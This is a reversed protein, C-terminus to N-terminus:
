KTNGHKDELVNKISESKNKAYRYLNDLDEENWMPEKKYKIFAIVIALNKKDLSNIEYLDFIGKNTPSYYSMVLRCLFDAKTTVEDIIRRMDSITASKSIEQNGNM